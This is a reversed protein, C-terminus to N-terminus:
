SILITVTYVFDKNEGNYHGGVSLFTNGYPINRGAHVPIFPFSPEAQWTKTQLNFSEVTTLQGSEASHFSHVLLVEFLKTM